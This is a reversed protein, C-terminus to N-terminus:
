VGVVWLVSCVVCSVRCVACVYMCVCVIKSTYFGVRDKRKKKYTTM